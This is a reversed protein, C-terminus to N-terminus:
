FRSEYSCNKLYDIKLEKNTTLYWAKFTTHKCLGRYVKFLLGKKELQRKYRCLNKEPICTEYSVMAATAINESLYQHFVKKQNIFATDKCQPKLPIPAPRKQPDGEKKRNFPKVRKM